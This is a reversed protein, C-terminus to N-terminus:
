APIRDIVINSAATNDRLAQFPLASTIPGNGATDRQGGNYKIRPLTIRYKNGAADGVTVKLASETQAIFKKVLAADEAYLSIQGTMNSRGISAIIQTSDSGVTPRPNIGNELTLDLETVVISAVGNELLAGNFTDMVANTNVAPYTAGAPAADGIALGRGMMGFKVTVPGEVGLKINLVNIEAGTFLEYRDTVIDSFDRLVSFSRRVTGAKLTNTLTTITVSEGAADTVLAVGGSVVIKATTRSVVTLNAQNNGASGTFGAITIKDGAEVLPADNGAFNISNDVSSASIGTGVVPAAKVAWTGCLAAEFFDDYSLYSLEGNIDGGTQKQGHRFDVIQRDARLEESQFTGKSLALTTGTHRITKLAPTAPTTGYTVEAIALLAHRASDSM